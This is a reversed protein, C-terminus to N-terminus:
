PPAAVWRAQRSFPLESAGHEGLAIVRLGRPEAAPGSGDAPSLSTLPLEFRYGSFALRVAQFREGIHPVFHGTPGSLLVQGAADLVLVTSAPEGRTTDAAWGSMLLLGDRTRASTVTGEVAAPRLEFTAGDSRLLAQAGDRSGLRYTHTPIRALGGAGAAAYLEVQNEGARFADPPLMAAFVRTSGKRHRYPRTVAVLRGNLAVLVEEPLPGPASLTGILLNPVLGQAPDVEAYRRYDNLEARADSTSLAFDGVARGILDPRRTTAYVDDWGRPRGFLALKQERQFTSAPLAAPVELSEGSELVITKTDREPADPALASRGDVAFPLEVGLADAVTPLLDISEVNRDSVGGPPPASSRDSSRDPARAPLKLFLPVQLIDHANELSPKRPTHGQRFSVGHDGVVILLSREDLGTQALRELLEGLLVDVFGLQLLHQQFGLEAPAADSWGGPRAWGPFPNTAPYRRGDPLLEWPRHPLLLHLFYLTPRPDSDIAAVFDRFIGVRDRGPGAEPEAATSGEELATGFDGWNETVPPLADSWPEPLVVHAYVLAVDDFLARLRESTTTSSGLESRPSLRTASERVMMRHSGALWTFLNDPYDSLTPLPREDELFAPLRGTLLAPLALETSSSSSTANRFWLSESALRAFNPFLRADIEGEADQLSALPLEDLVLWVVSLDSDVGATRARDSAPPAPGRELGLVKRIGPRALFLTVFVAPALALVRLITRFPRWRAHLWAAGAGVALALALPGATGSLVRKGPPLAVLASFFFLAGLHLLRRWRPGFLGAVAELFLVLVAPLVTAALVLLGIDLAGSDHVVFFTAQSGLVEFLPQAVALSSLALLELARPGAPEAAHSSEM